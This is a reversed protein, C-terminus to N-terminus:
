ACKDNRKKATPVAEPVRTASSSSKKHGVTNNFAFHQGSPFRPARQLSDMAASFLYGTASRTAIAIAIIGLAAALGTFWRYERVDFFVAAVFVSLLAIGVFMLINFSNAFMKLM